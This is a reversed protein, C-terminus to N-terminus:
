PWVLNYTFAVILFAVAGLATLTYAMRGAPRWWGLKWAAALGVAPPRTVM